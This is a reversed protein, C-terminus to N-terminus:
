HPQSKREYLAKAESQAEQFVNTGFKREIEASAVENYGKWHELVQIPVTNTAVWRVSVGYKDKLLKEYDWYSDQPSGFTELALVGHAIDREADHRGSEYPSVCGCLIL